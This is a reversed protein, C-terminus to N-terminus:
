ESNAAFTSARIIFLQLRNLDFNLTQFYAHHMSQPSFLGVQGCLDRAAVCLIIQSGLEWCKRIKTKAITGVVSHANLHKSYEGATQSIIEVKFLISPQLIDALFFILIFFAGPYKPVAYM